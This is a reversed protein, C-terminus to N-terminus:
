EYDELLDAKSELQQLTHKLINIVETRLINSAYNTSYPDNFVLLLFKPKECGVDEATEEIASGFSEMLSTVEPETMDQILKSM